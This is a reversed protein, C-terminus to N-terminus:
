STHEESRAATMQRCFVAAGAGGGFSGRRGAAFAAPAAAAADAPPDRGRDDDPAIGTAPTADDAPALAIASSARVADAPSLPPPRPRNPACRSVTSRASYTAM